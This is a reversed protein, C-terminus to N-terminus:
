SQAQQGRGERRLPQADGGPIDAKVPLAGAKQHLVQGPVLIWLDGRDGPHGPRKIGIHQQQSGDIVVMAPDRQLKKGVPERGLPQVIGVAKGKPGIGPHLGAKIDIVVAPDAVRAIRLAIPEERTMAAHRDQRAQWQILVAGAVM